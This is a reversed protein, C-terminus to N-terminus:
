VQLLSVLTSDAVPPQPGPKVSGVTISGFSNFRSQSQDEPLTRESASKLASENNSNFLPPKVLAALGLDILRVHGDPHIM